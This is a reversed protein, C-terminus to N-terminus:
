LGMSQIVNGNKGVCNQAPSGSCNHADFATEYPPSTFSGTTGKRM